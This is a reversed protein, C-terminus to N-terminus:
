AAAATEVRQARLWAQFMLIAWLAATSDQKGSLHDHWRWAVSSADLWGESRIIAPDLLDEAWDRLPGKIWEGVPIAFGSKPRRFLEPPAERFLLKKLVLKGQKDKIKMSLPIRAAVEAVRHDLYPAHAELGVAMSARDVKCLIDDPLYSTADCYMMRLADPAAEAVDMDFVCLNEEADAGLVPSGDDAWEDIFSAFLEDLDRAAAITRLSKRVKLGFFPPLDKGSMARGIRDWASAPVLGGSAAAAARVPAPLTKLKEWLRATGFYRNYGGFLEDGGDGSLAVTVQQRAFRSVLYTPIQSSDAFPEGYIQPLRAIVDQAERATVIQEHHDTGFHRAVARAHDAENFAQEAFGITFTRVPRQSYKQYLAVITSSDVGGSLFAGVPVDALSQSEVARALTRELEDIAEREDEIANDLGTRLVERYSWYRTLSLGHSAHGPVPPVSLPEADPSLELICGPQLKYIGRYISLPAPIYTRSAFLRLARRDIAGSFSPHVRISKLESGFVFDTGSWGYYLPKEGFRDRVLSLRRERRDWLAFAFQGVCRQLTPQLGWFGIAEVLVETDSHGRWGGGPAGGSRDLESRLEQHNYIEGNFTLVLRSDSSLIPQHGALSLDIIALRRNALGIGAHPDLWTGEDDPGRHALARGM